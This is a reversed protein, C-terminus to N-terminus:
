KQHIIKVFALMTHEHQLPEVVAQDTYGMQQIKPSAKTKMVTITNLM